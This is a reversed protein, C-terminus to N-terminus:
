LFSNLHFSSGRLLCRPMKFFYGKNTELFAAILVMRDRILSRRIPFLEVLSNEESRKFFKLRMSLFVRGIHPLTKM